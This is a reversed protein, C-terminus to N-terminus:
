SPIVTYFVQFFKIYCLFKIFVSFCMFVQYLVFIVALNIVKTNLKTVDRQLADIPM